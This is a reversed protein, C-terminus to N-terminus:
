GFSAIAWVVVGCVGALGVVVGETVGCVGALGVPFVEAGWDPVSLGVRVGM